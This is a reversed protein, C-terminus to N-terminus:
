PFRGGGPDLDLRGGDRCELPVRYGASGLGRLANEALQQRMMRRATEGSLGLRKGLAVGSQLAYCETVGEDGVGRLHWAEHALVVVALATRSSTIDGRFALRYLDYCREPTLYALAGGVWAVGEAGQVVGVHAREEDCRITVPKEAILSAEESFRAEAAARAERDLSSWGTRGQTVWVLLALAAIVGLGTLLGAFRRPARESAWELEDDSTTDDAEAGGGPYGFRERDVAQPLRDPSRSPAGRLAGALFAVELGLAIVFPLWIPITDRLVAPGLIWLLVFGVLAAYLWTRPSAIHDDREDM